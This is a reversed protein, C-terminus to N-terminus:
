NDNTKFYFNTTKSFTFENKLIIQYQLQNLKEYTKEYKLSVSFILWGFLIRM